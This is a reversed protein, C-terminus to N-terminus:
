ITVMVPLDAKRTKDLPTGLWWSRTELAVRVQIISSYAACIYVLPCLIRRDQGSEKQSFNGCSLLCLLHIRRPFYHSDCSPEWGNSVLRERKLHTEFVLLKVHNPLPCQSPFLIVTSWFINPNVDRNPKSKFPSSNCSPHTPTNSNVHPCSHTLHVICTELIPAGVVCWSYSLPTESKM